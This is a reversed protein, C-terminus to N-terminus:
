KREAVVPVPVVEVYEANGEPGYGFSSCFRFFRTEEGRSPFEPAISIVPALWSLDGPYRTDPLDPITATGVLAGAGPNAADTGAARLNAIDQSMGRCSLMDGALHIAGFSTTAENSARCSPGFPEDIPPASLRSSFGTARCATSANTIPPACGLGRVHLRIRVVLM